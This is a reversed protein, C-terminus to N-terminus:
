PRRGIFWIRATKPFISAAYRLVLGAECQHARVPKYVSFLPCLVEIIEKKGAQDPWACCAVSTTM